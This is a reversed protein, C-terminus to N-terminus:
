CHFPAFCNMRMREVASESVDEFTARVDSKLPHRCSPPHKPLSCPVNSQREWATHGVSEVAKCDKNHPQIMQTQTHLLMGLLDGGHSSVKWGEWSGFSAATLTDVADWNRWSKDVLNRSDTPNCPVVAVKDSMVEKHTENPSAWDLTSPSDM